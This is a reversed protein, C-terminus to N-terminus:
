GVLAHCTKLWWAPSGRWLYVLLMQFAILLPLGVRYVVHMRRDVLLDRVVGLLIIADVCVFTLNHDVLYDIRGFPADLLACTAMFLLRRHLEPKRRWHIALGACLAFSIMDGFSISLFTPFSLHLQITDFRNMIVATTFGLVVMGAALGVGFWGLSRHWKVNRTRVLASQLIYFPVWASFAAAHIWLLFPPQIAPHLLVSDISHSFGWVVVVAALLSMALYFYKDVLGNRGTFASPRRAVATQSLSSM